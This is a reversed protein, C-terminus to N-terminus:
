EPPEGFHPTLRRINIRENVLDRQIRVTGNTFVQTIPFPGLKDGELKRYVGDKIIYVFDGVKYDHPVRKNNERKNNYNIIKQKRQQITTWDPDFKIDLLMDRGFVLQGPTAQLTSHYSCRIAYAIAALINGWPDIADFIRNVLDNTKLMSGVVQHIREVIANAQPNKISICTPKVAFDKLLPQFNRKFESGNDYIVKRPRPYRALWVEDFLKSIRASSQDVLPVEKIEFWGTAPVILTMCVLKIENTKITNDLQRIKAKVSYPGILDVCVTHWPNMEEAEKPPLQGYKTNRTKYKQCAKCTRCLQRAQNVMGPWRCITTLTAALREGGPHQLYQHYWQLVRKCLTKPVYVRDRYHILNIGEVEKYCWTNSNTDNLDDRLQHSTEQELELKQEAEVIQPALPFVTEETAIPFCDVTETVFIDDLCLLECVDKELIDHPLRSKHHTMPLRSFADAVINAEGKIYNLKIGFEQMTGHWRQVRQSASETTEYTLNKHDTFVEIEYGLLINRFEKLTEVISLLEKETTTYNVQTKTLKRSYFALPKGEQMIVAGLQLDSADTYITIKKSFDPYALLVEKAIIKKIEQFATDWELTWKFQAM